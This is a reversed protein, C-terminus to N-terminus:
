PSGRPPAPGSAAACVPSRQLPLEAALIAEHARVLACLAPRRGANGADAADVRRAYYTAVMYAQQETSYDSLQPRDLAYDYVARRDFGHRIFDSATERVFNRGSQYQWVHTMEHLFLERLAPPEQSFDPAYRAPDHISIDNRYATLNAFQGLIGGPSNFIRIAAYDISNGFIISALRIEGPTLFRCSQDGDCSVAPQGPAFSPRREDRSPALGCAVPTLLGLGV